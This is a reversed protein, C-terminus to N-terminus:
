NKSSAFVRDSMSQMGFHPVSTFPCVWPKKALIMPYLCPGKQDKGTEEGAQAKAFAESAMDTAEEEDQPIECDLGAGLIIYSDSKFLTLSNINVYMEDCNTVFMGQVDIFKHARNKGEGVSEVSHDYSSQWLIGGSRTLIVGPGDPRVQMHYVHPGRESNGIQPALLQLFQADARDQRHFDNMYLHIGYGSRLLVYANKAQNTPAGGDRRIPSAQLNDKDCMHLTHQSSSMMMIGRKEGAIKKDITHDNFELFQGTPTKFRMFNEPGRNEPLDEVDKMLIEYGTASQWWCKGLYHNDCGFEFDHDWSPKGTPSKVSDDFEINHGSLSQIHIGSQPLRARPNLPTVPGRYPRGEDWRKFYPNVCKEGATPDNPCAPGGPCNESGCNCCVPQQEMLKGDSGVTGCLSADGAVGSGCAVKPHAEQGCPHLHDDKMFIFNGRSSSYVTGKWKLNCKRDGDNWRIYGKEPTKLGYIHPYTIRKKAEPDNEFDTISDIDYGNYNWTNWPPFVQTEDDKGILYGGRTGAWINYEEVPHGWSPPNGRDRNWISGFYFPSERHGNQFTLALATGAPPVWTVGSDDFSPFPSIPYAFPLANTPVEPKHLGPHFFRVRNQKLPDITSVCLALQVGYLTELQSDISYASRIESQVLRKTSYGLESFRQEMIKVRGELEFITQKLSAKTKSIEQMTQQQREQIGGQLRVPDEIPM